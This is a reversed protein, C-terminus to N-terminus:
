FTANNNEKENEYEKKQGRYYPVGPMIWSHVHGASVKGADYANAGM